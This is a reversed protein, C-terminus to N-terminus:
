QAAYPDNFYPTATSAVPEEAVPQAPVVPEPELFLGNPRSEIIDAIQTFTKGSDNDDILSNGYAPDYRGSITTFGFYRQVKLTLASQSEDEETGYLLCPGGDRVSVIPAPIIGHEVAIDSAVGLCCRSGDPRGLVKTTQQVTGSRLRAVLEKVIPKLEM